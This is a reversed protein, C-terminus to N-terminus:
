PGRGGERALVESAPADVETFADADLQGALARAADAVAADVGYGQWEPLLLSFDGSGMGPM